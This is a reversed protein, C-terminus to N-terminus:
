QNEQRTRILAAWANDLDCYTVPDMTNRNFGNVATQSETLGLLHIGAAYNAVCLLRGGSRRRYAQDSPHGASVYADLSEYGWFEWDPIQVSEPFLQGLVCQRGSALMLDDLDIENFWGPRKEDLLAAGRAVRVDAPEDLVPKM